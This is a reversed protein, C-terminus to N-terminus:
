PLSELSSRLFPVLRSRPIWVTRHAGIRETRFWGDPTNQGSSVKMRQSVKALGIAAAWSGRQNQHSTYHPPDPNRPRDAFRIPGNESSLPHDGCWPWNRSSCAAHATSSKRAPYQAPRRPPPLSRRVAEPRFLWPGAVAVSLLCPRSGAQPCPEPDDLAATM